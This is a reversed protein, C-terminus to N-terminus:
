RSTSVTGLGGGTSFDFTSMESSLLHPPLSIVFPSVLLTERWAFASHITHLTPCSLCGPLADACNLKANSQLTAAIPRCGTTESTPCPGRPSPAPCRRALRDGLDGSGVFLACSRESLSL